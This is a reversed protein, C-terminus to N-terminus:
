KKYYAYIKFKLTWVRIVILLVAFPKVNNLM